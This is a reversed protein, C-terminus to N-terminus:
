RSRCRRWSSCRRTSAAAPVGRRPPQDALGRQSVGPRRRRPHAQCQRAAAGAGPQSIGARALAGLLPRHRGRFDRVRLQRRFVLLRAGDERGAGVAHHHRASLHGPERRDAAGARCLAHPHHGARRVPRAACRDANDEGVVRGLGRRVADGAAGPFPQGGVLPDAGRDNRAGALWVSAIGNIRAVRMGAEALGVRGTAAGARAGRKAANPFAQMVGITRMTM